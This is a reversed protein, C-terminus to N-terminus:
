RPSAPPVQGQVLEAHGGLRRMTPLLNGFAERLQGRRERVATLIQTIAARMAPEQEKPIRVVVAAIIRGAPLSTQAPFITEEVTKGNDLTRPQLPQLEAILGGSGDLLLAWAAVLV